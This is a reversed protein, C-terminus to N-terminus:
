TGRTNLAQVEGVRVAFSTTRDLTGLDGGGAAGSVQWSVRWRVAVSATYEQSAQSSSSRRYTHSCSPQQSAAPQTPDFATGPGACVVTTGDGMAWVATEPVTLVTVTV